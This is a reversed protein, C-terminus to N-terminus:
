SGAAMAASEASIRSAKPISRAIMPPSDMSRGRGQDERGPPGFPDLAEEEDGRSEAPVRIRVARAQGAQSPLDLTFPDLSEQIVGPLAQALNM